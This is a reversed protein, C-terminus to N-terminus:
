RTRPRIRVAAPLLHLRRLPQRRVDHAGLAAPSLPPEDAAPHGQRQHAGARPRGELGGRGASQVPLHRHLDRRARKIKCGGPAPRGAAGPVCRRDDAHGADGSRLDCAPRGPGQRAAPLLRQHGRDAPRDDAGRERHAVHHRAAADRLRRGQDRSPRLRLLSRRRGRARVAARRRRRQAGPEGDAAARALLAAERQRQVPRGPADWPSDQEGDIKNLDFARPRLPGEWDVWGTPPNRHYMHTAPGFFGEKGLEREYTGSPCRRM